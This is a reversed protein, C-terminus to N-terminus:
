QDDTWHRVETTATWTGGLIAHHEGPRLWELSDAIEKVIEDPPAYRGSCELTITVTYSSQDYSHRDDPADTVTTRTYNEVFPMPRPEMHGSM